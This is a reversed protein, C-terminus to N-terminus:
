NCITNSSTLLMYTYMKLRITKKGKQIAEKLYIDLLSIVPEFPIFVKYCKNYM